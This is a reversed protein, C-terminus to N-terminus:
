SSCIVHHIELTIFLSALMLVVVFDELMSSSHMPRRALRRWALELMYIRAKETRCLSACCMLVCSAMKEVHNSLSSTEHYAVGLYGACMLKQAGPGRGPGRRRRESGRRGRKGSPICVVQRKHLAISSLPFCWCM